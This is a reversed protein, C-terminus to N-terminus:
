PCLTVQLDQSKNRLLFLLEDYRCRLKETQHTKISDIDDCPSFYFHMAIELTERFRLKGCSLSFSFSKQLLIIHTSECAFEHRHNRFTQKPPLYKNITSISLSLKKTKTNLQSVKIPQNSYTDKFTISFTYSSCNKRLNKEFIYFFTKKERRLDAWFFIKGLM